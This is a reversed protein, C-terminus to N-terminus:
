LLQCGFGPARGPNWLIVFPLAPCPLADRCGEVEHHAGHDLQIEPDKALSSSPWLGRREPRPPQKPLPASNAFGASFDVKQLRWGTPYHFHTTNRNNSKHTSKPKIFPAWPSVGPGNFILMGILPCALHYERLQVNNMRM